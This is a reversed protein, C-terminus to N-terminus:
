NAIELGPITGTSTAFRDTEIGLRQLMTVFLNPLPENDNKDFALHHGHRFGGGALLVPLNRNDHRNANGLNSGHLVMTRDLLTAGGERASKLGTLLEGLCKLEAEEITRLQKRADALQSQHTLAHHPITVGPLDVKPNFGQTVFVTVLRTSDTELALRALDYMARMRPVLASLDLVDEPVPAEVQPRPRQEWQEDAALRREVDRVSTLFQDLRERDRGGVRNTLGKLKDALSDMLSQGDRLRQLQAQVEAPTGQVFLRRYVESPRSEAPLRVGDANYSLSGSGPGVRLGLAPLRTRHGIHGAAYQDLSISNRFGGRTPHPAATLFSKDTGHGGVVEPHSVGSFVTFDGRHEGIVELYPSLRYDPGAEAPFFFDPLFGLDVCVALMRRPVTEGRDADLREDARAFAPTMADLLPLALCAGAARLVARRPLRTRTVFSVPKM